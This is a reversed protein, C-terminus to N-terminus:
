SETEDNESGKGELHDLIKQLNTHIQPLYTYLRVQALLLVLSILAITFFVFISLIEQWDQQIM